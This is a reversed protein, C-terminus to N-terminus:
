LIWWNYIGYLDVPIFTLNQWTMAKDGETLFTLTLIVHAFLFLLFGIKSIESNTGIILAASIFMVTAAWKIPQNKM